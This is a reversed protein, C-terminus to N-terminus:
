TNGPEEPSEKVIAKEVAVEVHGVGGTSSYGSSPPTSPQKDNAVGVDPHNSVSLALQISTNLDINSSVLKTKSLSRFPRITEYKGLRSEIDRCHIELDRLKERESDNLSMGTITGPMQSMSRNFVFEGRPDKYLSVMKPVFLLGLILSTFLLVGTSFVAADANLFDRLSIAGIIMVTITVTSSYIIFALYKADNLAKIKVKRTRFALYVAVLQTAIIYFFMVGIWIISKKGECVLNYHEVLVNSEDREVSTEKDEVEHAKYDDWITVGIMTIVIVGVLALVGLFLMWDKPVSRKKKASPNHFIYYVRWMKFMITGFCFMYGVPQLWARIHCYLTSTFEDTSSLVYFYVSTYLLFAGFLVVYNLKPSTLKVIKRERFVVNFTLCVIVFVIGATALVAFGILIPLKITTFVRKPSGDPPIGDPWVTDDNECPLACDHLGCFYTLNISSLPVTAVQVFQLDGDGTPAKTPCSNDRYRFIRTAHPVRTGDADFAVRGSVGIFSFNSSSLIERIEEVISGTGSGTDNAIGSQNLALALTWVADYSLAAAPESPNSGLKAEYMDRFEAATLQVDTPSTFNDASPIQLIAISRKVLDELEENTCDVVDDKAVEATWWHQKYWGHILWVYGAVYRSPDSDGLKVAQCLVRRAQEEYMDLMFVRIEPSFLFEGNITEFTETSSIIVEDVVVGNDTLEVSLTQSTEIFLTEQQTLIKLQSWGYQRVVAMVAPTVSTDSPYTRWFSQFRSRDSLIPSSSVYSIHIIGAYHSIEAVPETAPSCGCGLLAIPPTGESKIVDFYSWLSETRGCFIPYTNMQLRYRDSFVSNVEDVALMVAPISGNSVYQGDDTTIYAIRLDLQGTARDM